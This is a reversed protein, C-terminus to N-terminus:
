QAEMLDKLQQQLFARGRSIRSKVTGLKLGTARAIDEYELDQIDRLIVVERFRVDLENLAKQIREEIIASQALEDPMAIRSPATEVSEEDAATRRELGLMTRLRRRRLNTRALNLTITYIWTSFRAMPEYTHRSQHVRIFTDQVIDQCDEMNGVMRHAFNTLPDKFRHVLEVFAGDEGGQFRRMLEENSVEGSPKTM